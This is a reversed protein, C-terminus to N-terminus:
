QVILRKTSYSKDSEIKVIYMGRPINNIEVRNNSTKPNVIDIVLQGITNYLQISNLEISNNIIITVSNNNTPNPYVNFLYNDFKNISLTSLTHTGLENFSDIPFSDWESITYTTNPSTITGKRRKTADKAFNATGGNFNGVIDILIDNKFLGVPDNGNFQLADVTSNLDTVAIINSESTNSSVFVEGNILTGSLALPVGWSSGGNTNRKLSYISLDVANGTFNAIEIIKNIGSGEVYESIFVDASGTTTTATVTNSILSTNNAADKAYVTFNYSTGEALGAIYYSNTVSSVLFVDDKFIEYSTVGVNDTSATWSLDLTSSTENSAILNLPITPPDVDILNTTTVSVLNSSNSKNGAVDIAKITLNYTTNKTLNNLTTANTASNAVLSAGNYIEYSSVGINDTSATWNLDITTNTINSATLNLPTSPSETDPDVSFASWIINVYEPHDIYPNRNGQYTYAANNRDIERLSVPDNTHWKVLLTIFWNSYVQDETGNIMDHSWGDVQTQYRTAFYLMCRAIDGKFEDIPEFVTGSYGSTSNPGRKSGNLSIWNPTDVEGFPYNSRQGNVKGDSPVVHHIDNKMPSASNFIGQPFLHERNYCNSEISYSGCNNNHHNYNYPDTGSPNESYMDLITADNEYYRDTDTSEYGNYLDDYGHDVHGNKIINYLQTKLTYGTGTANSYYDSPIQSYTTISILTLFFLLKKM